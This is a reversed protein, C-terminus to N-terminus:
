SAIHYPQQQSSRSAAVTLRSTRRRQHSLSATCHHRHHQCVVEATRTGRHVGMRFGNVRRVQVHLLRLGSATHLALRETGYLVLKSGSGALTLTRPGPALASIVKRILACAMQMICVGLSDGPLSCIHCSFWPDIEASQVLALQAQQSTTATIHHRTSTAASENILLAVSPSLRSCATGDVQMM